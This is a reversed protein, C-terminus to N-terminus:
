IWHSVIHLEYILRAVFLKKSTAGLLERPKAVWGREKEKFYARAANLLFWFSFLVFFYWDM